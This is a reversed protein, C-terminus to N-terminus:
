HAGNMQNPVYEPLYDYVDSYAYTDFYDYDAYEASISWRCYEILNVNGNSTDVLYSVVDFSLPKFRFLGTGHMWDEWDFGINITPKHWYKVLYALQIDVKDMQTIGFIRGIHKRSVVAYDRFPEFKSMYETTRNQRYDFVRHMEDILYASFYKKTLKMHMKFGSWIDTFPIYKHYKIYAKLEAIFRAKEIETNMAWPKGKLIRDREALLYAFSSKGTGTNGGIVHFGDEDTLIPDIKKARRKQILWVLGWIYSFPWALYKAKKFGPSDKDINFKSAWARLINNFLLLLRKNFRSVKLFVKDPFHALRYRWDSEDFVSKM